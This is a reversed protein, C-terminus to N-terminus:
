TTADLHAHGVERGREFTHVTCVLCPDFSRVVHGLEVPNDPDAIRTGTVAQELPGPVGDADRPSANWATPTIVQYHAIAGDEIKVWHGLNGRAAMTLGAGEGSQIEGPSVYFDRDVAAEALWRDIVPLFRVPRTVRALERLFASCGERRLIDTCLADGAMIAEALPGTEAPAGAYRPAKAWSYKDGEHGTAYPDTVGESPHKGGEYDAFWSHAVHEAIETPDFPMVNAGEAIGATVLKDDGTKAPAIATGEPLPSGGFSLFRGPGAGITDLGLDRAYRLLFGLDSTRHAEAEELWSQLDSLSWVQQWRELSCGLVRREYWERFQRMILRCQELQLATPRSAIGGPIMFSSHPWQGGLLAIVELIHKTAEITQVVTDGAFPAYRRVAEEYLPQGQHAPNVFDVAYMLFTHRVDSQVHESLLCVNRVRVADPPPAVGTVMDLALAAATLHSNNCLGCIRPTIVLGDMAGRGILIREFGRYMTGSSWAQSVVSDQLEVRLELDGEVRNMPVTLSTKHSM